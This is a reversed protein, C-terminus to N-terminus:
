LSLSGQGKDDYHRLIYTNQSPTEGKICDIQYGQKRLDSIRTAAKYGWPHQLMYGLTMRYGNQYFADLIIQKHNM